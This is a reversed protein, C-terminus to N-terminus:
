NAKRIDVYVREPGMGGFLMREGNREISYGTARLNGLTGQGTIEGKGSAAGERTNIDVRQTNFSYGSDQYLAVDGWLELLQKGSDYRGEKANLNMWTNDTKFLDAQVTYLLVLEESQQIARQATVTYPENKDTMGELRPNLMVPQEGSTAQASVFSIRKGDRTQEILPIIVILLIIALSVGGLAWKGFLVMRTYRTIRLFIDAPLVRPRTTGQRKAPSM